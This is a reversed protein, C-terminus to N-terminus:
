NAKQMKRCGLCLNAMIKYIQGLNELKQKRFVLLLIDLPMVVMRINTTFHIRALSSLIQILRMDTIDLANSATMVIIEISFAIELSLGQQTLATLLIPEQSLKPKIGQLEFLRMLQDEM